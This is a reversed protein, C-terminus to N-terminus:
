YTLDINTHILFIAKKKRKINVNKTENTYKQECFVM